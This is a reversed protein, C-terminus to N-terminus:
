SGLLRIKSEIIKQVAAIVEPMIKSIAIEL